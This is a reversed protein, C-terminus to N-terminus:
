RFTRCQRFELGRRPSDDDLVVCGQGIHDTRISARRVLGDDRSDSSCASRHDPASTHLFAPPHALHNSEEPISRLNM